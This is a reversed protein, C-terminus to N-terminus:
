RGVGSAALWQWGAVLVTGHAIARHLNRKYRAQAAFANTVAAASLRWLRVAQFALAGLVVLGPWRPAVGAAFAAGLWAVLALVTLAEVWRRVARNGLLTTFTTKGGDRDSVEDSLGSALASALCLLAFGPLPWLVALGPWPSQCLVNFLPLVLGAGLMELLEGGGRYNLRLPPLSYAAFVLMGVLGLWLLAPRALLQAGLVAFGLAGVGAWLGAQLLARAELIADPITKPSCGDPFMRRKLTDISRDGWDNLWVIFLLGLVTFGAGLALGRADLRGMASAGLLQGLLCPLLLKPWSAPKASYLWRQALGSEARADM